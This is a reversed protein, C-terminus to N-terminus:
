EEKIIDEIHEYRKKIIKNTINNFLLFLLAGIIFGWYIEKMIIFTIVAACICFVFFSGILVAIKIEFKSLEIM